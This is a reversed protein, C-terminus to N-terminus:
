SSVTRRCFSSTDVPNGAKDTGTLELSYKADLTFAIVQEYGAESEKWEGRRMTDPLEVAGGSGDEAWLRVEALAPDFNEEKITIHATRVADTGAAKLEAPSATYIGDSSRGVNEYRIKAVPAKRDIYVTQEIRASVGGGENQLYFGLLM